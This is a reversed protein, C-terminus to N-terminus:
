NATSDPSLAVTSGFEQPSTGCEWQRVPHSPCPRTHTSSGFPEEPTAHSPRLLCIGFFRCDPTANPARCREGSSWTRLLSSSAPPAARLRSRLAAGSPPDPQQDPARLSSSPPWPDSGLVSHGAECAPAPGNSGLGGSRLSSTMSSSSGLYRLSSRSWAAGSSSVKAGALGHLAPPPYRLLPPCPAAVSASLGAECAPAPGDSGLRCWPGRNGFLRAPGLPTEPHQDPARLRSAQTEVRAAGQQGAQSM